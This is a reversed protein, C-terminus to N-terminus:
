PTAGIRAILALVDGALRRATDEDECVAVEHGAESVVTTLVLVLADGWPEGSDVRLLTANRATWERYRRRAVLEFGPPGGGALFLRALDRETWCGDLYGQSGALFLRVPDTEGETRAARVAEAARAEQRQQYDEFLALYLEAKGGFHHYLSGVSAGARAVVDAISAEAFGSGTFVVRAADLLGTRTAAARGTAPATM